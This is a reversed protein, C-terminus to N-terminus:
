KSQASNSVRTVNSVIVSVSVQYIIDRLMLVELDLRLKLTLSEEVSNKRRIKIVDSGPSKRLKKDL